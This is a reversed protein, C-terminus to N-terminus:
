FHYRVGLAPNLSNIGFSVTSTKDNDTSTDPDNSRVRLGNVTLELAWHENLFYAVGPLLAFTLSNGKRDPGVPPNNRTSAVTLGAQGFFTLSENGTPIYYRVFPGFGFSNTVNRQDGNGTRSSGVQLSLGVAFNDGVFYGFSPYFNVESSNNQSNGQRSTSAFDFGGGLMMNGSSTQAHAFSVAAAFALVLIFSKNM